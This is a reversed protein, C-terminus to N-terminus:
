FDSPQISLSARTAAAEAAPLWRFDYRGRREARWEDCEIFGHKIDDVYSWPPYDEISRERTGDPWVAVLWVWWQLQRPSFLTRFHSVSSALHGVIEGDRSLEGVGDRFPDISPDAAPPKTWWSSSV